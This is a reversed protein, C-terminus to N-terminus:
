CDGKLFTIKAWMCELLTKNQKTKEPRGQFLEGERARCSLLFREFAAAQKPQYPGQASM